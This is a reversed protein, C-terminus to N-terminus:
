NINPHFFIVPIETIPLVLNPIHRASLSSRIKAKVKEVLNSDFQFDPKVKIFLVVREESPNEPNKQGVCLSDDVEEIGEITNYIDASGFRVGNPNLTGDSRGLMVVGGTKSSIMVFDGHAWVGPFKEFYSSKYKKFNEDNSFYIPMSPFPKTCVLEGCEDYVPKGEDNWCQVAMGLQRCQIEGRYVPLNM